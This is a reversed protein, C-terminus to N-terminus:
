NAAPTQISIELLVALPPHQNSHWNSDFAADTGAVGETNELAEQRVILHLEVCDVM